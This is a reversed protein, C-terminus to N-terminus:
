DKADTRLYAPTATRARNVVLDVESLGVNRGPKRHPSRRFRVAAHRALTYLWTRMACRAQYKHLGVWLDERTQSLVENADQENRLIHVLFGFLEAGYAELACTAAGQFDGQERLRHIQQDLDVRPSFNAIPPQAWLPSRAGAVPFEPSCGRPPASRMRAPSCPGPARPSVRSADTETGRTKPRTSTIPQPTTSARSPEWTPRTAPPRPPSAVMRRSASSTRLTRWRAPAPTHRLRFFCGRFPRLIWRLRPLKRGSSRAGTMPKGHRVPM